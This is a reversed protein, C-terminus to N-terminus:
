SRARGGRRGSDRPVPARGEVARQHRLTSAAVGLQAGLELGALRCIAAVMALHHVTHGLVFRLERGFSTPQFAIEGDEACASRVALPHEPVIEAVLTRLRSGLGAIRARAAGPDVEDLTERDRRDYDIWGSAVGACLQEFHDLCHRVHRGITGDGFAPQTSSWAAADLREALAGIQALLDAAAQQPDEPASATM